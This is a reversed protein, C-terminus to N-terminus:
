AFIAKKSFTESFPESFRYVKLKRSLPFSVVTCIYAHVTYSLFYPLKFTINNYSRYNKGNRICLKTM